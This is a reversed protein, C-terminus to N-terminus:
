HQENSNKLVHLCKYILHNELLSFKDTCNELAFEVLKLALNSDIGDLLKNLDEENKFELLGGFLTNM